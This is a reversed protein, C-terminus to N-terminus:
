VHYADKQQASGGFGRLQGAGKSRGPYPRNKGVCPAGYARKGLGQRLPDAPKSANFPQDGIDLGFLDGMNDICGMGKGGPHAAIGNGCTQGASRRKTRQFARWPRRLGAVVPLEGGINICGHCGQGIRWLPHKQGDAFLIQRLEGGLGPVEIQKTQDVHRSCRQGQGVGMGDDGTSRKGLSVVQSKQFIVADGRDDGFVCPTGPGFGLQRRGSGQLNWHDQNIPWLQRWPLNKGIGIPHHAPETM